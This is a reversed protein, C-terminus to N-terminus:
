SSLEGVPAVAKRTRPCSWVAVGKVVGAELPHSDPHTPCEPWTAPRLAACLEEVAWGQVQDALDAVQEAPSQWEAVSVGQGSGGPAYLMIVDEGLRMFDREEHVVPRVACTARVDRLVVDLAAALARDKLHVLQDDM